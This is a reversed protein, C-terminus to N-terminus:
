DSETHRRQSKWRTEKKVALFNIIVMNNYPSFSKFYFICNYCLIDHTSVETEEVNLLQERMIEPYSRSGIDPTKGGTVVFWVDRLAYCNTIMIKNIKM